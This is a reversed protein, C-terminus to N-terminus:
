PRHLLHAGHRLCPLLLLGSCCVLLPFLLPQHILGLVLQHALLAVSSLSFPRPGIPDRGKRVGKNVRTRPLHIRRLQVEAKVSNESTRSSLYVPSRSTANHEQPPFPGLSRM